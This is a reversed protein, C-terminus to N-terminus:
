RWVQAIAKFSIDPGPEVFHAMELKPGRTLTNDINSIGKKNLVPSEVLPNRQENKPRGM